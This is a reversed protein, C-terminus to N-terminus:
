LHLLISQQDKKTMKSVVLLFSNDIMRELEGQPVSGDLYVTNWHQKNMHYGPLVFDFEERLELAKKPNCKLNIRLEGEINTLAFMKNMVKFVLTKEDFPFSETAAKKNICYDRISEINM